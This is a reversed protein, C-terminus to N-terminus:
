GGFWLIDGPLVSFPISGPIAEGDADEAYRIWRAGNFLWVASAAENMALLATATSQAAGLYDAPGAGPQGDPTLYRIVPGADGSVPIASAATDIVATGSKATRSAASDAPATATLVSVGRGVITVQAAVQGNRTRGTRTGGVESPSVVRATLVGGATASSSFEIAEGDAVPTGDADTVTVTATFSEGVAGLESKEPVSISVSHPNGAVNFSAEIQDIGSGAAVTAKYLGSDLPTAAAANVDIVVSCSTRATRAQETAGCNIEASHSGSPLPDGDPDTVQVTAGDPIRAPNGNADTASVPISVTDRDDKAVAATTATAAVAADPTGYALISPVGERLTIATASGSVVIALSEQFNGATTGIVTARITSTGPKAPANFTFPIAGLLGPMNGTTSDVRVSKRGEGTPQTASLNVTCSSLDGAPCYESTITGGGVATVTIASVAGISSAQGNANRLALNFIAKTGIRVPGSELLRTTPNVRRSLAVSSLQQVTDIGITYQGFYSRGLKYYTGTSSHWVRRQMVSEERGSLSTKEAGDKNDLVAYFIEDGDVTSDQRAVLNATVTIESAADAAVSITPVVPDTSADGDADWRAYCTGNGAPLSSSVASSAECKLDAPAIRKSGNAFTAPGTIVLYSSSDLLAGGADAADENDGCAGTPTTDPIVPAADPDNDISGIAVCAQTNAALNTYGDFDPAIRLGITLQTSDRPALKGDADQRLAGMVSATPTPPPNLTLTDTSDRYTQGGMANFGDLNMVLDFSRDDEAADGDVPYTATFTLGSKVARTGHDNAVYTVAEPRGLDYGLVNNRGARWGWIPDQGAWFFEVGAAEIEARVPQVRNFRSYVVNEIAVPFTGDPNRDGITIKPAPPDETQASAPQLALALGALLAAVAALLLLRKPHLLALRVPSHSM